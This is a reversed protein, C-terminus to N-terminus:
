SYGIVSAYIVGDGNIIFSNERYLKMMTKVPNYIRRWSGYKCGLRVDTISSKKSFYNVALLVEAEPNSTKRQLFLKTDTPARKESRSCVTDRYTTILVM